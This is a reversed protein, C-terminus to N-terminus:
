AEKTFRYGINRVTEVFTHHADEIKSRLRRIHVDVTRDGGFYDYGWVKNLLDQRTYVRGPSGALLKLMEYEKFTLDIIKGDMAVECSVPDIVLSGSRILESSESGSGRNLLRKARLALELTDYPATIFDDVDLQSDIDILVKAPAMAIVPLSKEKKLESIIEWAPSDSNSDTLEIVLLEPSKEAAQSMAEQYSAVSCAFGHPVVSESLSSGFDTNESVILIRIM